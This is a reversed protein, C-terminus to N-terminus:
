SALYAASIVTVCSVISKNSIEGIHVTRHLTLWHPLTHLINCEKLKGWSMGDAQAQSEVERHKVVLNQIGGITSAVKGLLYARDVAAREAQETVVVILGDEIGITM